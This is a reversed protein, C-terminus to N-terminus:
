VHLSTLPYCVTFIIVPFEGPIMQSVMGARTFYKVNHGIFNVATEGCVASM